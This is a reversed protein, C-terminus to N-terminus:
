SELARYRRDFGDSRLLEMDLEPEKWCFSFSINFNPEEWEHEREGIYEYVGEFQPGTFEAVPVVFMVEPADFREDKLLAATPHINRANLWELLIHTLHAAKAANAVLTHNMWNQMEAVANEMGFVKGANFAGVMQNTSYRDDGPEPDTWDDRDVLPRIDREVINMKRDNPKKMTLGYYYSFYLSLAAFYAGFNMRLLFKFKRIYGATPM